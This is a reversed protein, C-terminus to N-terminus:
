KQNFNIHRTNIQVIFLLLVNSIVYKTILNDEAFTREVGAAPFLEERCM